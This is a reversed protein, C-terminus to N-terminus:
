RAHLRLEGNHSSFRLQSGGGNVTGEIGDRRRDLTRSLVAFDSDIQGIRGDARLDFGSTSPLTLDALGNHTMITAGHFAAFDVAVSGNHSNVELPGDLHVVRLSGNHIEVNLAGTVDHLEADGNHDRITWYATRPATIEYSISPNSGFLSWTVVPDESTIRVSDATSTVAITTENFRRLDDPSVVSSEIWAHIEIQPRDWTHVDISGNHTDLTVSGTPALAVTKDVSKTEVDASRGDVGACAVASLLALTTLAFKM